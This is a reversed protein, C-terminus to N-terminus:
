GALVAVAEDPPVLRFAWARPETSGHMLLLCPGVDAVAAFGESRRHIWVVFASGDVHMEAPSWVSADGLKGAVSGALERTEEAQRDLEDAAPGTPIRQLLLTGVAAGAASPLGPDVSWGGDGGPRSGRRALTELTWSAGGSGDDPGVAVSEWYAPNNGVSSRGTGVVRLKGPREWAPLLVPIDLGALPASMLEDYPSTV